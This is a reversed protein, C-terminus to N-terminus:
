LLPKAYIVADERGQEDHPYYARRRGVECFGESQYLYQAHTNSTRVELFVTDAGKEGALRLMRRLLRRGIGQHQHAPAVSLNLLHAEGAAASLVAHGLLAGDQEVVQCQYGVRLCDRLIGLTWPHTYAAQENQFVAPLDAERMGRIALRPEEVVASV